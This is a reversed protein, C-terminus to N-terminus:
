EALKELRRLIEVMAMTDLACYERLNDFIVKREKVTVNGYLAQQYQRAAQQGDGIALENYGFDTLAPLVSKLSCNGKQRPHHVWFSRFPIILDDMREVLGALREAEAPFMEALDELVGKEFGMNWCLITGEPGIAGLAEVLGPRPDGPDPVDNWTALYEVHRPRAGPQDQIHLSFQFPIRQYPRTGALPPIAPNMTEFDLHYLPYELGGLWQRLPTRDVQVENAAVSKKQIQQRPTLKSDPTDAIAFIGEDLLGFSRAGARYFYTVNDDPLVSWCAEKLPCTFPSTCRPGIPTDPDPGGIVDFMRNVASPVYDILRLVRETVDELHFFREVEFKEDRVYGTDVHMLYLRNLNVGARTLADHQFAVDNINVDKVRTSSKVEVLDWTDGSLRDGDPGPVPVLVDVRCYRGDVLFSAEFIPLRRKMLDKTATVTLDLADDAKFLLPVEKGGPYLRKALDGVMHGTDFIHQQAENTEPIAERNNFHTWLLKPCQLGSLYKSKSIYLSKDPAM